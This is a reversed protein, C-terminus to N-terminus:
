LLAKLYIIVEKKILETETRYETTSFFSDTKQSVKRQEIFHKVGKFM